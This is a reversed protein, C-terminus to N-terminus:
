GIYHLSPSQTFQNQLLQEAKLAGRSSSLSARLGLVAFSHQPEEDFINRDVFQDFLSLEGNVDAPLTASAGIEQHLERRFSCVTKSIRGRLDVSDAFQRATQRLCLDGILKISFAVTSRLSEGKRCLRNVPDTPTISNRRHWELFALFQGNLLHSFFKAHADTYNMVPDLMM